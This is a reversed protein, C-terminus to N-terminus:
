EELERLVKEIKSTHFLVGVGLLMIPFGTAMFVKGMDELEESDVGIAVGWVFVGLMIFFLGAGIGIWALIKLEKAHKGAEEVRAKKM